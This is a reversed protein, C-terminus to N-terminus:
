GNDALGIARRARKVWPEEIGSEWMPLLEKLALYLEPAAEYYIGPAGCASCGDPHVRMDVPGNMECEECKKRDKFEVM